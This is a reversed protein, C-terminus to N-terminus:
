PMFNKSTTKFGGALLAATVDSVSQPVKAIELFKIISAPMSMRCFSEFRVEASQEQKGLGVSSPVGQDAGLNLIQRVGARTAELASIRADLDALVATYDITESAM